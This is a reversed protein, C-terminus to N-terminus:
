APAKMSKADDLLIRLNSAAIQAHSIGGSFDEAADEIAMDIQDRISQLRKVLAENHPGM